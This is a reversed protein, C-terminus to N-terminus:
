ETETHLHHGDWDCVVLGAHDGPQCSTSAARYHRKLAACCSPHAGGDMLQPGIGGVSLIGLRQRLCDGSGTAHVPYGVVHLLRDACTQREQLPPTQCLCHDAGTGM